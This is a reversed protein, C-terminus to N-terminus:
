NLEPWNPIRHKKQVQLIYLSVMVGYAVSVLFSTFYLMIIQSSAPENLGLSNAFVLVGSLFIAFVTFFLITQLIVNHSFQTVHPAKIKVGCKWLHKYFFPVYTNPSIGIDSMLRSYIKVRDQFLM